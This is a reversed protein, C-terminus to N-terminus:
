SFLSPASGAAPAGAKAGGPTGPNKAKKVKVNGVNKQKWQELFKPETDGAKKEVNTLGNSADFFKDFENSERFEGTGDKYGSEKTTKEESVLLVGIALPKRIADMFVQREVPKEAKAEFDYIKITKNELTQQDIGKGTLAQFFANMQSYGPLPKANGDKDKYTFEGKKNSIYVTQRLTRDDTKFHINVSMAGGESKDMYVLEVTGAYVNSPVPGSGLSDREEEAKIGTPLSLSTM